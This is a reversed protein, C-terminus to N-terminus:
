ASGAIMTPAATISAEHIGARPARLSSRIAWIRGSHDDHATFKEPGMCRSADNAAEWCNEETMPDEDARRDPHRTECNSLM